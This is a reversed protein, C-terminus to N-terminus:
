DTRDPRSYQAFHTPRIDALLWSLGLSAATNAVIAADAAAEIDFEQQERVAPRLRDIWQSRALRPRPWVDEDRERGRRSEETDDTHRLRRPRLDLDEVDLALARLHVRQPLLEHPRRTRILARLLEEGSEREGRHPDSCFIPSGAEDYTWCGPPNGAATPPIFASDTFVTRTAQREWLDEVQHFRPAAYRVLADAQVRNELEVLVDHQDRDLRVRFFPVDGGESQRGRAERASRRVM